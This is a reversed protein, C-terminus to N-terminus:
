GMKRQISQEESTLVSASPKPKEVFGPVLNSESSSKQVSEPPESSDLDHKLLSCDGSLERAKDSHCDAVIESEIVKAKSDSSQLSGGVVNNIQSTESTQRFSIETDKTDDHPFSQATLVIKSGDDANMERKMDINPEVFSHSMNSNSGKLIQNSQVGLAISALYDVLHEQPSRTSGEVDGDVKDIAM